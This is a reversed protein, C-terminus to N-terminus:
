MLVNHLTNDVQVPHNTRPSHEIQSLPDTILFKIRDAIVSVGVGAETITPHLSHLLPVHVVVGADLCRTPIKTLYTKIIVFAVRAITCTAMVAGEEMPLSEEKRDMALPAVAMTTIDATSDTACALVMTVITTETAEDMTGHATATATGAIVAVTSPTFDHSGLTSTTEDHIAHMFPFIGIAQMGIYPVISTLLM